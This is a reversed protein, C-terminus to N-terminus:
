LWHIRRWDRCVDPGNRQHFSPKMLLIVLKKLGPINLQQRAGTAIVAKKFCLRKGQVEVTDPGCFHATGLFGDVGLQQFRKASDVHSIWRLWRMREM